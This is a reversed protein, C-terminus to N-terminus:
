KKKPTINFLDAAAGANFAPFSSRQGVYHVGADLTASQGLLVFSPGLPQKMQARVGLETEIREAVAGQVGPPAFVSCAWGSGTRSSTFVWYDAEDIKGIWAASATAPLRTQVQTEDVQRLEDDTAKRLHQAAATRAIDEVTRGGNICMAKFVDFGRTGVKTVAEESPYSEAKKGQVFILSDGPPPSPMSVPVDAAALAVPILLAFPFLRSFLLM